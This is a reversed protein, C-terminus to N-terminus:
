AQALVTEGLVRALMLAAALTTRRGEVPADLVDMARAVRYSVTNGHIHLREATRPRSMGEELFVYLTERLRSTQDDAAALAGLERKV